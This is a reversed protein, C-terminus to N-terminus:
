ERRTSISKSHPSATASGRTSSDQAQGRLGKELDRVGPTQEESWAARGGHASQDSHGENAFGGYHGGSFGQNTGPGRSSENRSETGPSREISQGSPPGALTDDLEENALDGRDLDAGSSFRADHGGERGQQQGDRKDM